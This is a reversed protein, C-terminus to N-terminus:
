NKMFRVSQTGNENIVNVFYIGAALRSVDVKYYSNVNDFQMMLAGTIDTIKITANTAPLLINLFNNTPNPYASIGAKENMQLGGSPTLDTNGNNDAIRKVDDIDTDPTPVASHFNGFWSCYVVVTKCVTTSCHKVSDYVTLCVTYTGTRPFTHIPSKASSWSSDGFSWWFSTGGSTTNVFRYTNCFNYWYFTPVPCCTSPIVITKCISNVCTSDNCKTVKLCLNYTGAGNYVHYGPNKTTSSTGDGWTWLYTM